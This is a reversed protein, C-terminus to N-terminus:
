SDFRNAWNDVIRGQAQTLPKTEGCAGTLEGEHYACSFSAGWKGDTTEVYTCGDEEILRLNSAQALIKATM